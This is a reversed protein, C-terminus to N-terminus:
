LRFIAIPIGKKKKQDKGWKHFKAVFPFGKLSWGMM